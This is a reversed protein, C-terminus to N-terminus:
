SVYRNSRWEIGWAWSRDRSAPCRHSLADTDHTLHRGCLGCDSSVTALSLVDDLQGNFPLLASLKAAREELVKSTLRPLGSAVEKACANFEEDTGGIIVERIDPIQCIDEVSPCFDHPDLTRGYEHIITGLRSVRLRRRTDLARDERGRKCRRMVDIVRAEM